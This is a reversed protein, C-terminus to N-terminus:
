RLIEEWHCSKPVFGVPRTGQTLSIKGLDRQRRKPPTCDSTTETSFESGLSVAEKFLSKTRSTFLVRMWQHQTGNRYRQAFLLRERVNELNLIPKAATWHSRTGEKALM